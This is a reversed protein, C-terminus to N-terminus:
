KVYDNEIISFYYDSEDYYFTDESNSVVIQYDDSVELDTPIYWYYSGDNTELSAIRHHYSGNKYLDIHVSDSRQDEWYIWEGSDLMWIEGGNPSTVLIEGTWEANVSLTYYGIGIQKNKSAKTYRYAVRLYYYGTEYVYYEIKPQQSEAEGDDDYAVEVGYPYDPGYLYFDTDFDDESTNEFYYTNGEHLYVKYWDVDGEDYIAYNGEHPLQSLLTAGTPDDNWDSVYDSIEFYSDSIDNLGSNQVSAIKVIYNTGQPMDFLPTIIYEGNNPVDLILMELIDSELGRYFQININESFNAEWRITYPAGVQLVEYGNPSTLEIFPDGAEGPDSITSTCSLFVSLFLASLLISINVKKLM